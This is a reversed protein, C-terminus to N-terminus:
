GCLRMRCVLISLARRLWVGLQEHCLSTGIRGASCICMPYASVHADQQTCPGPVTMAVDLDCNNVEEKTHKVDEIEGIISSVAEYRCMMILILCKICDICQTIALRICVAIIHVLVSVSHTICSILDGTRTQCKHTM